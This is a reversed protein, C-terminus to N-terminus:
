KNICISIFSNILETMSKNQSAAYNKFKNKREKSTEITIIAEIQKPYAQQEDYIRVTSFAKDFARKRRVSMLEYGGDIATDDFLREM